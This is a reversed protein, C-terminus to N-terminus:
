AEALGRLQTVALAWHEAHYLIDLKGEANVHNFDMAMIRFSRGSPPVGFFEKVPTGTLESRVAIWNGQVIFQINEVNIDPVIDFLGELFARTEVKGRYSDNGDYSKWDDALCAFGAEWNRKDHRFLNYFPTIIAQAEKHSIYKSM